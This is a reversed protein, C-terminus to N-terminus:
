RRRRRLALVALGVLALMISGPAPIVGCSEPAGRALTGGADHRQHVIWDHGHGPWHGALAHPLTSASSTEQWTLIRM